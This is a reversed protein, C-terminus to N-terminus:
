PVPLLRARWRLITRRRCAAEKANQCLRKGDVLAHLSVHGDMTGGVYALGYTPYKVLTGRTFSLSRTGGYPKRQGERAPQLRHLQRRHWQFPTLCLVRTNGPTGAGGVAAHALVWADVCHASFTEALKQKSKKLGWADRLQKTEWGQRTQGPALTGLEQYFWAKGVELPSFHHDWQRKGKTAAKIDEVMFDTIPFLCCLWRCLRLKWQWRAKTSPPLGGRARNCRPQRCPTRRFRRARRMPRRTELAGKVWTVADAQINLYTHASSKVVLAEKKSGPDIGIAIPQTQRASPERNLRVCFVGGKWFPTAHGSKIWRRARAPTTPMM